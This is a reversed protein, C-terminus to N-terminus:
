RIGFNSCESRYGRGNRLNERREEEKRVVVVGDGAGDRVIECLGSPIFLYTVKKSVRLPRKMGCHFSLLPVLPQSFSALNDALSPDSLSPDALSVRGRWAKVGECSRFKLDEELPM